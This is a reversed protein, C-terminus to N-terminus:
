DLTLDVLLRVRQRHEADRQVATHFRRDATVLPIDRHIALALYLCDYVPHELRLALSAAAELLDSQAVWELPAARLLRVREIVDAASLEGRRAKAWLANTCEVLLLDPAALEHQALAAAAESGEEDVVWKLAVSADVVIGTM